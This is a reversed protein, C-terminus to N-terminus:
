VQIHRLKMSIVFGCLAAKDTATNGITQRVVEVDKAEKHVPIIVGPYVYIKMDPVGIQLTLGVANAPVLGEPVATHHEGPVNGVAIGCLVNINVKSGGNILDICVDMEEATLTAELIHIGAIYTHHCNGLSLAIAFVMLEELFCIAEEGVM